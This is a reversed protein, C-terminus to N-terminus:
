LLERLLLAVTLPPLMAVSALIVFGVVSVAFGIVLELKEGM